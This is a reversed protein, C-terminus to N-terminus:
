DMSFPKTGWSYRNRHIVHGKIKMDKVERMSMFFLTFSLM